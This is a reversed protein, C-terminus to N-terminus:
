AGHIHEVRDLLHIWVAGDIGVVAYLNACCGQLSTQREVVTGDDARQALHELSTARGLTVVAGTTPDINGTM